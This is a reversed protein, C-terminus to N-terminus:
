AAQGAPLPLRTLMELRRKEGALIEEALQKAEPDDALQEVCHAIEDIMQREHEILRRALFDLALDDYAAFEMPFQDTEVYGYRRVLLRGIRVAAAQQEAAIRRVVDLLPEDGPRKWPPAYLLYNALSYYEIALLRNLVRRSEPRGNGRAPNDDNM